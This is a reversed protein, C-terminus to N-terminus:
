NLHCAILYYLKNSSLFWMFTSSKDRNSKISNGTM